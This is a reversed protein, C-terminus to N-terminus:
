ANCNKNVRLEENIFDIDNWNLARAEGKRLGCYYLTEYLYKFKLDNAYSIFQKFEELTYFEMEKEIENVTPLESTIGLCNPLLRNGLESCTSRTAILM